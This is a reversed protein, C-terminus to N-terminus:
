KSLSLVFDRFRPNAKELIVIFETGDVRSVRGEASCKGSGEVMFTFSAQQDIEVPDDGLSRFRVGAKAIDVLEVILPSARGSLHVEVPLGVPMRPHRRRNKEVGKTGKTAMSAEGGLSM